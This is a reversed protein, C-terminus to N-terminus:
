GAKRLPVDFPVVPMSPTAFPGCRGHSQGDWNHEEVQQLIQEAVAVADRGDAGSVRPQAGSRVASAFDKLEEEIANVAPAEETTKVLLENFLEAKLHNKDDLTLSDVHFSRRLVDERPEVFTAQRTNFDIGVFGRSTFAQLTREMQFSVRSATLQAVCGNEFGLQATVMDEHDGLVSLGMATVSSVPSHVLSLVIDIDHIMLDLVAGIDTSRFTYGSTRTSRLLRPDRLKPAALEMAPNFREVHGVQLVLSRSEAERVLEDAETRTPTLPKEVLVHVGQKLLALVVAHHTVTPTAVVAADIKGFLERYDAVAQTGVEEAVATRHPESPDAVAVLEFQEIGAALKAHFRGLHGAGIVAIRTRTM